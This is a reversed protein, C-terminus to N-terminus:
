GNGEEDLSKFLGELNNSAPQLINESNLYRYIELKLLNILQEKKFIMTDIATIESKTLFTQFLSRIQPRHQQLWTNNLIENSSPRQDKKLM